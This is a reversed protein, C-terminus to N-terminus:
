VVAYGEFFFTDKNDNNKDIFSKFFNLLRRINNRTAKDIKFLGLLEDVARAHYSPSRNVLAELSALHYVKIGDLSVENTIRLVVEVGFCLFARNDDRNDKDGLSM